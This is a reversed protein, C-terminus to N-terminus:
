RGVQTMFFNEQDEETAEGGEGEEDVIPAMKPRQYGGKPILVDETALREMESPASFSFIHIM